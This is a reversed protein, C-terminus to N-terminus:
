NKKKEELRDLVKNLKEAMPLLFDKKRLHVRLSYDGDAIKELINEIRFLAGFGHKLIYALTVVMVLGFFIFTSQSVYYWTELGYFVEAKDLMRLSAFANAVASLIALVLVVQIFRMRKNIATPIIRWKKRRKM